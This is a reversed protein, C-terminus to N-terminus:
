LCVSGTLITGDCAKRELSDKEMPESTCSTMLTGGRIIALEEKRLNVITLKNLLLKQNTKRTKM